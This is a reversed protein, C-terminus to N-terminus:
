VLVQMVVASVVDGIHPFPPLSVAFLYGLNDERALLIRQIAAFLALLSVETCSAVNKLLPSRAELRLGQVIKQEEVFVHLRRSATFDTM